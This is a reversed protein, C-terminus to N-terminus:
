ILNTGFNVIDQPVLHYQYVVHIQGTAHTPTSVELHDAMTDLTRNATLTFTSLTNVTNLLTLIAAASGNFELTLIVTGTALSAVLASIGTVIAKLKSRFGALPIVGTAAIQAARGEQRVVTFTPSDYPINQRTTM